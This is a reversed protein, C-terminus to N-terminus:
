HGRMWEMERDDEEEREWQAEEDEDVLENCGLEDKFDEICSDIMVIAEKETMNEWWVDDICIIDPLDMMGVGLEKHCKLNLARRFETRSVFTPNLPNM